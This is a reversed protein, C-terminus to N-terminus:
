QIDIDYFEKEFIEDKDNKNSGSRYYKTVLIEGNEDVIVSSPDVYYYIKTGKKEGYLQLKVEGKTVGAAEGNFYLNIRYEANGQLPVIECIRFTGG